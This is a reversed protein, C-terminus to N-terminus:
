GGAVKLLLPGVIPLKGLLSKLQSQFRIVVLFLVLLGVAYAAKNSLGKKGKALKKLPETAGEVASAVVSM